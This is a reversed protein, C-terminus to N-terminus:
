RLVRALVPVVTGRTLDPTLTRHLLVGDVAAALVAATAEPTPVDHAALWGALTRRFDALVDAVARRLADDRTAALLTETFLEQPEDHEDLAALLAALAEQPDDVEDLVQTLGDVAARLAQVSARVLLAHLSDFHYHVVGPGVGAREALVRTSVAGWGKEAILQRAAHLLREKVTM